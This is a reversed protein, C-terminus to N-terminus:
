DSNAQTDASRRAVILFFGAILGGAAPLWWRISAPLAHAMAVFSGSHGSLGWQFAEIAHRFAVTAFAGLLGVVVAWVLMTHAESLRFLSQARTRLRLLFSLM